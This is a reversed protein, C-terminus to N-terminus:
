VGLVSVVVGVENHWRTWKTFRQKLCDSKIETPKAGGSQGAAGVDNDDSADSAEEDPGGSAVGGNGPRGPAAGDNIM